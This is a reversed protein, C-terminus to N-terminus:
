VVIAVVLEGQILILWDWSLKVYFIEYVDWRKLMELDIM